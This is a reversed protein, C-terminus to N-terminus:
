IIKHVTAATRECQVGVVNYERLYAKSEVTRVLRRMRMGGDVFLYDPDTLLPV